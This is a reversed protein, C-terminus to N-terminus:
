PGARGACRRCRRWADDLLWSEPDDWDVMGANAGETIRPLTPDGGSKYFDDLRLGPLGVRAALRSKGAGSPGALVIVRARVPGNKRIARGRPFGPGGAAAAYQGAAPPREQSSQQCTTETVNPWLSRLSPRMCRTQARTSASQTAARTGISAPPQEDPVGESVGAPPVDVVAPEALAGASSRGAAPRDRTAAGKRCGMGPM